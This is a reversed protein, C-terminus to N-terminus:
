DWLRLRVWIWVCSAYDSLLRVFEREFECSDMGTIVFDSHHSLLKRSFNITSLQSTAAFKVSTSRSLLHRSRQPPRLRCYTRIILRHHQRLIFLQQHHHLIPFM